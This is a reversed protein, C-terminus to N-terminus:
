IYIDNSYRESELVMKIWNLSAMFTRRVLSPWVAPHHDAQKGTSISPCM